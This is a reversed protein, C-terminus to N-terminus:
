GFLGKNNRGCGFVSNDVPTKGLNIHDHALDGRTYPGDGYSVIYNCTPPNGGCIGTNGTAFALSQCVSPNCSVTRYSPSSDTMKRGGIEVTVIYNLTRLEVGSTLPIRAVPVQRTEAPAM